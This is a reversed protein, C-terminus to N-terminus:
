QGQPNNNNLTKDFCFDVFPSGASSISVSTLDPRNSTKEPNAGAIAAQAPGAAVLLPLAFVAAAVAARPVWARKLRSAMLLDEQPQKSAARAVGEGKKTRAFSWALPHPEVPRAM